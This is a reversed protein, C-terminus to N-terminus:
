RYVAVLNLSNDNIFVNYTTASAREMTLLLRHGNAANYFYVGYENIEAIGAPVTITQSYIGNTASGWNASSIASSVVTFSSPPIKNSNVGDHTHDNLRQINNELIPFFVSGRDGSQPKVYGNSLTVAM